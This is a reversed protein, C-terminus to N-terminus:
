FQPETGKKPSPGFIPPAGGRAGGGKQSPPSPGWRVCLGRSPPRGGYCTADQHMCDNQWLLFPGFFHSPPEVGNTLLLPSLGCRVCLRRPQPRGEHWTADQDMWGNPWLLCPGFIQPLARKKPLPVPDGDLVFDGPSLGVDTGLPMKMCGAMQGRYFHASFQPPPEAGGGKLPPPAPDGELV